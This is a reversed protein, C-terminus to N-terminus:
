RYWRTMTVHPVAVSTDSRSAEALRRAEEIGNLHSEAAKAYTSTREVWEESFGKESPFVMTEFLLPPGDSFYRHNIGLFVTSVVRGDAMHTYAIRREDTEFRSSWEVFDDMPSVSNDANIVYKDSM